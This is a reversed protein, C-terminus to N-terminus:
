MLFLVVKFRVVITSNYFNMGPFKIFSKLMITRDLLMNINRNQKILCFLLLMLCGLFYIETRLFKNICLVNSCSLVPSWLRLAICELNATDSELRPESAKKWLINAVDGNNIPTSSTSNLCDPLKLECCLMIHVFASHGYLISIVFYPWAMLKCRNCDPKYIFLKNWTDAICLSHDVEKDSFENLFRGRGPDCNFDGTLLIDDYSEESCINSLQAMISKFEVFSDKTRYDCNSYFILILCIYGDIRFRLGMIRDRFKISTSVIIQIKKGFNPMVVVLDGLMLIMKGLLLFLLLLSNTMLTM